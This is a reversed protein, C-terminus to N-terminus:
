NSPLTIASAPVVAVGDPFQWTNAIEVPVPLGGAPVMRFAGQDTASDIPDTPDTGDLPFPRVGLDAFWLNSANDYAIGFPTGTQPGPAAIVGDLVGADTVHFIGPAVLVSGVAWGGHIADRTISIPTGIGEVLTHMWVDKQAGQACTAASSPFNSYRDIVGFGAEPVLLGGTADFAVMGPQALASDIVCYTTYDPAFFEVLQGDGIVPAHITGVDVGFLNGHSDFACGAPDNMGSEEGIRGADGIGSPTLRAGDKGFVQFFPNEDGNETGNNWTIYPNDDAEVFRGDPDGPIFCPPGNVYESSPGHGGAVLTHMTRSDIDYAMLAEDQSILVVQGTAARATGQAGAFGALMTTAILLGATLRARM